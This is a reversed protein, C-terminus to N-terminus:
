GNQRRNNWWFVLLPILVLQLIIGPLGTLVATWVSSVTLSTSDFFTVAAFIAAMRALRGIVQALVVKLIVPMKVKTLVGSALGYFCLEVMMFPLVVASPMGSLAFSILPACLGTLAGVAPGAIIGVIIVPLHMPLFSEGLATGLGSVAGLAHFLQPLAVAAVLATVLALTKAKITMKSNDVSKVASNNM